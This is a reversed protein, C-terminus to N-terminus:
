EATENNDEIEEVQNVLEATENNDEIEEEKNISEATETETLELLQKIKSEVMIETHTDTKTNTISRVMCFYDSPDSPEGPEGPEGPEAPECDILHGCEDIGLHNDELFLDRAYAIFDQQSPYPYYPNNYSKQKYIQTLEIIAKKLYYTITDLINRCSKIRRYEDMFCCFTKKTNKQIDLLDSYASCIDDKYICVNCCKCLCLDPNKAMFQFLALSYSNYHCYNNQIYNVVPMIETFNQNRTADLIKTLITKDCEIMSIQVVAPYHMCHKRWREPVSDEDCALFWYSERQLSNLYQLIGVLFYQLLQDNVFCKQVKYFCVCSEISVNCGLNALQLKKNFNMYSFLFQIDSTNKAVNDDLMCVNSVTRNLVNVCSAKM